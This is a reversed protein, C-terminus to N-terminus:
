EAPGMELLDEEAIPPLCSVIIPNDKPLEIINLKVAVCRDLSNDIQALCEEHTSYVSSASYELDNVAIWLIWWM